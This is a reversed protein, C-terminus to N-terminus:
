SSLVNPGIFDTMVIIAESMSLIMCSYNGVGAVAMGYSQGVIGQHWDMNM